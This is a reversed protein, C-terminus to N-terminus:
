FRVQPPADLSQRQTEGVDFFSQPTFGASRAFLAAPLAGIAANYEAVANNFFRRAAALKDEINSLDNQLSQFNASAKLDPYAEGLAVLRGIAGQLAAESAAQQGPGQAAVAANRAKIVDDLTGREHGAYGKVAEVLNPILDHRQKLQVDVDGFAQSVRQRLAVLGNYTVVLWILLILAVAGVVLWEM